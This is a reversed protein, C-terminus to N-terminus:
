DALMAQAMLFKELSVRSPAPAPFTLEAAPIEAKGEADRVPIVCGALDGCASDLPALDVAGTTIGAAALSLGAHQGISTQPNMGLLCKLNAKRCAAALALTPTIGGLRQPNLRV